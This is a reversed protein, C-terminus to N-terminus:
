QAPAPEAPAPQTEEAAPQAEEPAAPEPKTILSTSRDGNVQYLIALEVGTVIEAPGTNLWDMAPKEATSGLYAVHDGPGAVGDGDHDATAMVFYAGPRVGFCFAGDEGARTTYHRETLAEDAYLDVLAGPVPEGDRTVTGCVVAPLDGLNMRPGLITGDGSRLRGDRPLVWDFRLEIGTVDQGDPVELLPASPGMVQEYGYVAMFDGADMAGSQNFNEIGVLHYAGSLGRLEFSGDRQIPAARPPVRPHIPVLVAYAQTDESFRGIAKGAIRSEHEAAYPAPLQAAVPILGRGDDAIEFVIPITMSMAASGADVRFPQPKTRADSVGYFGIGDGPGAMKDGDADVFAMVYYTGPDLSLVFHGKPGGSPYSEVLKQRQPDAYVRIQANSLDVDRWWIRGLVPIGRVTGPPLETAPNEDAAFPPSSVLLAGAILILSLSFPRRSMDVDSGRLVPVADGTM